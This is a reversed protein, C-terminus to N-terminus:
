RRNNLDDLVRRESTQLVRTMTASFEAILQDVISRKDRANLSISSSQPQSSQPASFSAQQSNLDSDIKSMITQPSSMSGPQANITVPISRGDPLPVIAEPKGAEAVRAITGGVRSKAIGGTAFSGMPRPYSPYQPFSENQESGTIVKASDWMIRAHSHITPLVEPSEAYRRRAEHQDRVRDAILLGYVEEKKNRLVFDKLKKEDDELRSIDRQRSEHIGRAVEAIDLGLIRSKNLRQNDDETNKVNYLDSRFDKIKANNGWFIQLREVRDRQSEGIPDIPNRLTAQEPPGAILKVAKDYLDPFAKLSSDNQKSTVVPDQQEQQQQPKTIYDGQSDMYVKPLGMDLLEHMRDRWPRILSLALLRNNNSEIRDARDQQVFLKARSRMSKTWSLMQDKIKKRWEAYYDSADRGSSDAEYDSLSQRDLFELNDRESYANWMKEPLPVGFPSREKLLRNREADTKQNSSEQLRSGNSALPSYGKRMSETILIPDEYTQNADKMFRESMDSLRAYERRYKRNGRLLAQLNSIRNSAKITKENFSRFEEMSLPREEKKASRIFQPMGFFSSDELLPRWVSEYSAANERYHDKGALSGNDILYALASFEDGGARSSRKSELAQRRLKVESQRNRAIADLQAKRIVSETDESDAGFQAAASSAMDSAVEAYLLKSADKKLDPSSSVRYYFEENDKVKEYAKQYINVVDSTVKPESTHTMAVFRLLDNLRADFGNVYSSMSGSDDLLLQRARERSITGENLADFLDKGYRNTSTRNTVYEGPTAYLPVSDKDPSGISGPIIGGKNRRIPENGITASSNGRETILDQLQSGGYPQDSFGSMITSFFQGAEKQWVRVIEAGTTNIGDRMDNEVGFFAGMPNSRSILKNVEDSAGFRAENSMFGSTTYRESTEFGRGFAGSRLSVVRNNTGAQLQGLNKEQTIMIQTFMGAGTTMASIASIYGDRLARTVQAQKSVLSLEEAKLENMKTQLELTGALIQEREEETSASRARESMEQMRNQLIAMQSNVVKIQDGYARVQEMRMEASPAVGAALNTALEVERDIVSARATMLQALGEYREIDRVLLKNQSVRAEAQEKELRAVEAEIQAIAQYGLSVSELDNVFDESLVSSAEGLADKLQTILEGANVNYNIGGIDLGEKIQPMIEQSLAAMALSQTAMLDDYAKYADQFSRGVDVGIEVSGFQRAVSLAADYLSVQEQLLNKQTELLDKVLQQNRAAQLVRMSYEEEIKAREEALRVEEQRQEFAKAAAPQLRNELHEQLKRQEERLEELKKKDPNLGFANGLKTGKLGIVNALVSASKAEEAEIQKQVDSIRSRQKFANREDDSLSADNINKELFEAYKKNQEQITENTTSIVQTAAGVAGVLAGVGAGVATGIGPVVSGLMAGTIAGALISGSQRLGAETSTTKDSALVDGNAFASRYAQSAFHSGLGAVTLGGAMNIAGPAFSMASRAVGTTRGAVGGIRGTVGRLLRPSRSQFARRGRLGSAKINRRSQQWRSRKKSSGSSRKGDKGGVFGSGGAGADGVVVVRLANGFGYRHIGDGMLGSTSAAAAPGLGGGRAMSAPQSSNGTLNKVFRFAAIGGGVSAIGAVLKSAMGLQGLIPVLSGKIGVLFKSIESLAPQLNNAIEFRIDEFLVRLENLTRINDSLQNERDFSPSTIAGAGKAARREEDMRAEAMQDMLGVQEKMVSLDIKGALQASLMMAQYAKSSREIESADTSQLAKVIYEQLMPLSSTASAIAEQLRQIEQVNEGVVYRLSRFVGTMRQPKQLNFGREFSSQLSLLETRSFAFEDKLRMIRAETALVDEGYKSFMSRSALLQRSYEALEQQIDGFGFASFIGKVAGGATALATITDITDSISSDFKKVSSGAKALTGSMKATSQSARNLARNYDDAGDAQLHLRLLREIIQPEAM